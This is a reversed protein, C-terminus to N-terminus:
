AWEGTGVMTEVGDVGTGVLNVRLSSAAVPKPLSLRFAANETPMFANRLGDVSLGDLNTGLVLSASGSTDRGETAALVGGFQVAGVSATPVFPTPAPSSDQAVAAPATALVLLVAMALTMLRRTSHRISTM